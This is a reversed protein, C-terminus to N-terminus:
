STDKITKITSNMIDGNLNNISVTISGDYGTLSGDFTVACGEDITLAAGDNIFDSASLLTISLIFIIILKKM